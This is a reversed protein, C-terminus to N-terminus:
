LFWGGKNSRGLEVGPGFLRQDWGAGVEPPAMREVAVGPCAGAAHGVIRACYAGTPSNPYAAVVVLDGEPRSRQMEGFVTALDGRERPDVAAFWVGAGAGHQLAFGGAEGAGGLLVVRAIAADQPIRLEDEGRGFLASSAVAASEAVAIAWDNLLVVRAQAAELLDFWAGPGALCRAVDQSFAGLVPDEASSWARVRDTVEAKDGQGLVAGLRQAARTAPDVIARLADVPGRERGFGDREWRSEWANSVLRALAVHGAAAARAVLTAISWKQARLGDLAAGSVPTRLVLPSPAGSM